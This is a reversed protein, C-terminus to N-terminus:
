SSPGRGSWSVDSTYSTFAAQAWQRLPNYFVAVSVLALAVLAPGAIAAMTNRRRKETVPQAVWALRVPRTRPRRIQAPPADAPRVNAPTSSIQRWAELVRGSYSVRWTDGARDPHLWIMLLRMHARAQDRPVGNAVGLVRSPAAGPYLMVAVVYREVIDMLRGADGQTLESAALEGALFRLLVSIDQPLRAQRMVPALSPNLALARAAELAQNTAV